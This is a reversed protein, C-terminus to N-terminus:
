SLSDIIKFTIDGSVIGDMKKGSRKTKNLLDSFFTFPGLTKRM